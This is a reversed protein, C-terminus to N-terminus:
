EDVGAAEFAVMKNAVFAVCEEAAYDVRGVFLQQERFYGASQQCAIKRFKGDPCRLAAAEIAPL